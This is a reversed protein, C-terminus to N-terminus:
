LKGIIFTVILYAAASIVLGLVANTLTNKASKTGDPSGASTIYKIGGIIIFIVAAVGAIALAIHILNVILKVIDDLGLNNRNIGDWLSPPFAAFFM